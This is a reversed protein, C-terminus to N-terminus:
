RRKSKFWAAFVQTFMKMRRAIGTLFGWKEEKMVQAAGKWYVIHQKVGSSLLYANLATEIGYGSGWDNFGELLERRLCRQGSIMPAIKQAAGTLLRGGEFVGLTAQQSGRVVPQVLAALHEVSVDLLDADIFCLVPASTADIGTKLARAKGSNVSHRLVRAGRKEAEASTADTSGDDVVVVESFLMSRQALEIMRGVRGAENFAPIIVACSPPEPEQAHDASATM